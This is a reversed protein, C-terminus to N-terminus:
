EMEQNDFVTDEELDISETEELEDCMIGIEYSRVDIKGTVAEAILATRYEQVLAIEKEITAITKNIIATEKEIHSVIQQQEQIPPIPIQAKKTDYVGLGVRTVGNSCLEFQINIPKCQLGRLLYEGLLSSNPRLISLHYGCVVNELEEKVVAPVAIDNATESDKTIIVDGVKLSFKEIQENTASALMLDMDNTIFDNKYVDTYNCLRVKKEGEKTHKDINSPFCVAVYKLKRVEWHEPIDGLWEIGSPKMKAKPNLGKTVADNIIGAKQENLIKILQKKKAIFRDIKATKYDLFNAITTQESKNIPAFMALDNVKGIKLNIRTFGRAQISLRKRNVDALFLYNLFKPYFNEDTIRFGKCFSNLYLGEIEDNLLSTKGIDEFNESSMLFLLDNKIVLNQKENELIKVFALKRKDIIFNNAINTFPIYPSINVENEIKFDDGSKGSLGGFLYGITKPKFESWHEPIDGLWAIGSPKYKPYPKINNM